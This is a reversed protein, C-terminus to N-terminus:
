TCAVSYLLVTRRPHWVKMEDISTVLALITIFCLHVSFSRRHPSLERILLERLAESGEAGEAKCGVETLRQSQPLRDVDALRSIGILASPMSPHPQGRLSHPTRFIPSDSLLVSSPM